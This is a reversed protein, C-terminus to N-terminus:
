WCPFMNHQSMHVTNYLFVGIQKTFIHECFFIHLLIYKYCNCETAPNCCNLKKIEKRIEKREGEKMKKFISM